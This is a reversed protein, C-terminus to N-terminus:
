KKGPRLHPIYASTWFPWKKGQRHHMTMTMLMRPPPTAASAAAAVAAKWEQKQRLGDSRVASRIPYQIPRDRILISDRHWLFSSKWRSLSLFLSLHYGRISRNIQREPESTGLTCVVSNISEDAVASVIKCSEGLVKMIFFPGMNLTEWFDPTLNLSACQVSQRNKSWLHRSQRLQSKLAEISSLRRWFIQKEDDQLQFSFLWVTGSPQRRILMLCGSCARPDSPRVCLVQRLFREDGSSCAQVCNQSYNNRFWDTNRLTSWKVCYRISRSVPWLIRIDATKSQRGHVVTTTTRYM